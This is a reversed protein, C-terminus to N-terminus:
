VPFGTIEDDSTASVAVLITEHAIRCFSTAVRKLTASAGPLKGAVEGIPPIIYLAGVKSRYPVNRSSVFPPPASM